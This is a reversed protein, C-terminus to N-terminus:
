ATMGQQTEKGRNVKKLETVIDKACFFIRKLSEEEADVLEELRMLQARVAKSVIM